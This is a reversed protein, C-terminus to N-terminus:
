RQTQGTWQISNAATKPTYSAHLNMWRFHDLAAQAARGWPGLQESGGRTVVDRATIAVFADRVEQERRQYEKADTRLSLGDRREAIRFLLERCKGLHFLDAFAPSKDGTVPKLEDIGRQLRQRAEDDAQDAAAGQGQSRLEGARDMLSQAARFLGQAVLGRDTSGNIQARIPDLNPVVRVPTPIAGRPDVAGIASGEGGPAPQLDGTPVRPAAVPGPQDGSGPVPVTIWEDEKHLQQSRKQAEIRLQEVQARLHEFRGLLTSTTADEEALQQQAREIVPTTAPTTGRLCELEGALPLGLDYRIRADLLNETESRVQQLERKSRNIAARVQDPDQARALGSSQTLLVAIVLLRAVAASM